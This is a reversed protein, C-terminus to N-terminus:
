FIPNSSLFTSYVLVVILSAVALILGAMFLGYSWKLLRYKKRLVLGLNYIDISMNDYLLNEDQRLEEMEGVYNELPLM